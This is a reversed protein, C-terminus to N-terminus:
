KVTTAIVLTPAEGGEFSTEAVIGLAGGDGEVPEEPVEGEVPEEPVEGEVPEEPVEGEVPEEPVEGEVPEEPVEGEVLEPFEDDEAAVV